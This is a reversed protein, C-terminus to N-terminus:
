NDEPRCRYRSLVEMFNSVDSINLLQGYLFIFWVDLAFNIRLNLEFFCITLCVYVETPYLMLTNQLPATEHAASYLDNRTIERLRM